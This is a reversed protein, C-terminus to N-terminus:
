AQETKPQEPQAQTGEANGTSYIMDSLEKRTRESIGRRKALQEPNNVSQRGAIAFLRAVEQPSLTASPEDMVLIRADLALAKAIAVIQQQALTLERCVAANNGSRGSSM